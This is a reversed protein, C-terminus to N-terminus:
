APQTDSRRDGITSTNEVYDAIWSKDGLTHEVSHTFLDNTECSRVEAWFLGLLHKGEPTKDFTEIDSPDEGTRLFEVSFGYGPLAPIIKEAQEIEPYNPYWKIQDVYYSFGFASERPKEYEFRNIDDWLEWDTFDFGNALRWAAFATVFEDKTDTYVALRVDSRYGM